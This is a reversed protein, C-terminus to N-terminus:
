KNNTFMKLCINCDKSEEVHEWLRANLSIYGCGDDLDVEATADSARYEVAIPRESGPTTIKVVVAYQGGQSLQFQKSLPITYYGANELKGQQVYIKNDFSAMDEFEDVFYIEYQTNAGTAYFSVAELTEDSEAQYVNSFYATEDEYGLQGIWGCIDSQYITDYNDTDEIKTYVVNHMGINSDYYSVYFLGHNGFKSGWSNMCIFAGDDEIDGNFNSKSYTDDWGVIVVDHNPKKTGNYYYSAKRQNYYVSAEAASNMSTYLSSEVGGYLFVAKKISQLDKGEIIQAEQVHKLTEADENYVGDGYPDDEESVPGHWSALYAIARTYDGGQSQSTTYGNNISMNDVSFEVSQKPLLSSELATLSAFAWCTNLNGQNKVRPLKGIDAYNFKEPLLGGSECTDKMTLTRNAIDWDLSYNLKKEFVDALLYFKGDIMRSIEDLGEIPYEEDNIMLMHNELDTKLIRSGKQMFFNNDEYQCFACQFADTVKEAPILISRDDDMYIKADGLKVEKGDVILKIPEANVDKAIIRSWEAAIDENEEISAGAVIGERFWMGKLGAFLLVLVVGIVGFYIKKEKM